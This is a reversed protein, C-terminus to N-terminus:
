CCPTQLGFLCALWTPYASAYRQGPWCHYATRVRRLKVTENKSELIALVAEIVERVSSYGVSMFQELLPRAAPDLGQLKAMGIVAATGIFAIGQRKAEARGTRDDM